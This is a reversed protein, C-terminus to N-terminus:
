NEKGKEILLVFSYSIRVPLHWRLLRYGVRYAMDYLFSSLTGTRIKVPEPQNYGYIKRVRLNANEVMMIIDNYTFFRELEQGHDQDIGYVIGRMIDNIAWKNPVVICMVGNDKLVRNMELLAKEPQLFHELSGLCVVFDFFRDQYPLSEATGQKFRSKKCRKKAIDIAKQAIDLGYCILKKKEANKLLYGGGCGVDLIKQGEKSRLLNVIWRYYQTNEIFDRESWLKEYSLKLDYLTKIRKKM